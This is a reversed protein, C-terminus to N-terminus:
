LEMAPLSKRLLRHGSFRIGREELVREWGERTGITATDEYLGWKEEQRTLKAFKQHSPHATPIFEEKRHLIPPNQSERYDRYRIQFTQLPVVMSAALAPHPDKEFDPYSLYSIQAKERHLKIINAGDVAGMYARACGEYIRLLPPLYPLASVHLYLANPTLKGVPAERCAQDVMEKKGASFLLADAEGCAKAYRSFFARVDLQLDRPLQSFRPRGEFRLLALYVLLDQVREERIKSWGEEGTVRRIIGYARNLSGAAECILPTEKLESTDPLRGRDTLFAILPEFLAKHQEFLIDSQRQRPAAARRRYRSAVFSQRIDPDRFIYFVGPAVPVSAEGLIADIWERLERQEYYKQFTGLRTLCGDGHLTTKSDLQAEVTLRASVVLVKQALAWANRLTTVREGPDEIVNIVYGLNVIDSKTKQGQPYYAPDWGSCPINREQLRRLDDGKGCGYDFVSTQDSVVGDELALRLPRSLEIRNIATKHRAVTAM